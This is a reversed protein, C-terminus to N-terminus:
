ATETNAPTIGMVAALPAPTPPPKPTYFEVPANADGLGTAIVQVQAIGPSDSSVTAQVQGTTNTMLKTGAPPNLSWPGPNVHFYVSLGNFPIKLTPRKNPNTIRKGNIFQAPGSATFTGTLTSTGKPPVKVRKPEAKLTAQLSYRDCTLGFKGHVGKQGDLWVELNKTPKATAPYRAVNQGIVTFGQNTKAYGNPVKTLSSQIIGAPVSTVTAQKPKIVIGCIGYPVVATYVNHKPTNAVVQAPAFYHLQKRGDWSIWVGAGHEIVWGHVGADYFEARQPLPFSPIPSPYTITITTGERGTRPKVTTANKSGSGNNGAKGKSKKKPKPTATPKPSPKASAKANPKPSPSPKANGLASVVFTFVLLVAAIRHPDFRNM